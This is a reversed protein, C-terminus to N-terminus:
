SELVHYDILYTSGSTFNVAGSNDANTAIFGIEATDVGTSFVQINARQVGASGGGWNGTGNRLTAIFTPNSMTRTFTIKVWAYNGIGSGSPTLIITGKIDKSGTGMTVTGTSGLADVVKAPTPASSVAMIGKVPVRSASDLLPVKSAEATSTIAATVQAPGTPRLGAGGM